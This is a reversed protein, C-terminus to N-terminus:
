INSRRGVLTAYRLDYHILYDIKQDDFESGNEDEIPTRSYALFELKACIEMGALFKWTTVYYVTLPKKRYDYSTYAIKEGNNKNTERYLMSYSDYEIVTLYQHSVLQKQSIVKGYVYYDWKYEPEIYEAEASKDSCQLQFLLGLFVTLIVLVSFKKM